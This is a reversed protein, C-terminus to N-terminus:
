NRRWRTHSGNQTVSFAEVLGDTTGAVVLGGHHALDGMVTQGLEHTWALHATSAPITVSTMADWVADQGDSSRVQLRHIGPPLSSVELEGSWRRGTPALPQWSSVPVGQPYVRTSVQSVGSNRPAQVSIRVTQHRVSATTRPPGFAGGPGPDTLPATVVVTGTADGTAPVTVESTVLRDGDADTTREAWYYVRGHIIADGVVQTLGNFALVQRRHIHGAFAVRVLYPEILKLLKESNNVFFWDGSLPFHNFLVIPTDPPVRRLDQGIFEVLGGSTAGTTVVGMAALFTRRAVASGYSGVANQQRSVLTSAAVM